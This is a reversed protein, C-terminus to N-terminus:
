DLTHLILVSSPGVKALIQREGMALQPLLIYTINTCRSYWRFLFEHHCKLLSFFIGRIVM